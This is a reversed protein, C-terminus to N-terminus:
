GVGESVPFPTLSSQNPMLCYALVRIPERECADGILRRFVDYDEGEQFVERRGDGRSSVPLMRWSGIDTCRSASRWGVANQRARCCM